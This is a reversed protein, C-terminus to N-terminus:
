CPLDSHKLHAAPQLQPSSSAVLFGREVACQAGRGLEWIGEQTKEVASCQARQAASYQVTSSCTHVAWYKTHYM